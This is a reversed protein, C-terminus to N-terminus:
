SRLSKCVEDFAVYIQNNSDKWIDSNLDKADKTIGVNLLLILDKTM